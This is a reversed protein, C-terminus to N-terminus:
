DRRVRFVPTCHGNAHIDNGFNDEWTNVYQGGDIGTVVEGQKVMSEDVPYWLGLRAACFECPSDAGTHQMSKEINYGTDDKINAMSMVAARSSARNIETAALRKARWQQRILKRLNAEIQTRVQQENIGDDLVNRIQKGTQINFYTSVRDLYERYSLRQKETVFFRKVDQAPLGTQFLLQVGRALHISGYVTILPLIVTMMEQVFQEDQEPEPDGFAKSVLADDLGAIAKEVQRSIQNEAIQRIKNEALVKDAETLIEAQDPTFTAKSQTAQMLRSDPEDHSKQYGSLLTDLRADFHKTLLDLSKAYVDIPQVPTGRAEEPSLVEPKEKPKEGRVLAMLDGTEVYAIASDITYGGEVLASITRANIERSEAKVKEEDAITPIELPYAIGVGMGGSIRNLEHTFKSWIKLTKPALGYKVLIVEDVRISAYTNADNVARLSAPVGYSSDIKQNVQTFLDKLAMDKNQTSFPVWEIQSNLPAGSQDVPRHAYTINNNRGAGRHRSQMMDVIDNFEGTTRTTIIMEGAPVAGNEFFGKQYDAIYDDLRTWRRAARSPSFGDTISDPNVSKLTIVEQDTLLEGDSMRYKRQGDIVSETFGEMFTFGTISDANIRTGTHHVRLRVKDHVLTCVMLAERFDAASMDSNPTYLRDLVNSPVSNGSKDITYPEIVMFAEALVRISSYGNEFQHDKYFGYASSGGVSHWGVKNLDLNTLPDFAKAHASSGAIARKLFGM